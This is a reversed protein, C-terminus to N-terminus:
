MLNIINYVYNLSMVPNCKESEVLLHEVDNWETRAIKFCSTEGEPFNIM